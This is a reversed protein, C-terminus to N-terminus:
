AKRDFLEQERPVIKSEYNEIKYNLRDMAQHLGDLRKQLEERQELLIALRAEINDDGAQLLGIYDILAEVSLGAKKFYLVFKLIGIDKDSFDRMGSQNRRIPPLLGIREYYRITDASAGTMESVKKINM